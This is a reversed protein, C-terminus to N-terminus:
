FMLQLRTRVVFEDPSSPRWGAPLDSTQLDIANFAYGFDLTWKVDQGNIYWNVGVTALNLMAPSRFAVPLNQQQTARWNSLEYRGFIEWKPAIYLGGQLVLGWTNVEGINIPAPVAFATRNYASPADVYNYYFAGYLSAGGFNYQTDITWGYWDNTGALNNSVPFNLTQPQSQQFHFAAGLLWGQAQGMPSTFSGFDQWAGFPKWELRTTVSIDSEQRAWFSNQPESGVTALGPGSLNDTGGDDLSLQWRIDDTLLQLEVGQTYGLGMHYDVVSRDVAMQSQEPLLFERSYPSRYQGARISWNDTLQFRIWTDLLQLYGSASGLRSPGQDGVDIATNNTFRAKIMYQVAPGFVHGRFWLETNPLDFQNRDQKRDTVQPDTQGSRIHSWVYRTQLLGGVQLKFRGDPSALFFGDNWGATMGDQRLSARSGSDALVDEVIQRIQAAREQTLWEEGRDAKMVAVEGALDRNRRELDENRRELADLRKLIDDDPVQGAANAASTLLVSALCATAAACPSTGLRALVLGATQSRAM